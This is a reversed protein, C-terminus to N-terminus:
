FGDETLRYRKLLALKLQKYDNAQDDPLRSYVDLARGTLLTSLSVAWDDQLWGVSTAYREFRRIYSDLDDQGDRFRPIKPSKIIGFPHEQIM